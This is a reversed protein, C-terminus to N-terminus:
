EITSMRISYKQPFTIFDLYNDTNYLIVRKVVSRGSPTALVKGGERVM